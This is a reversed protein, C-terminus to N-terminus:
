IARGHSLAEFREASFQAWTQGSPEEIRGDAEAKHIEALLRAATPGTIEMSTVTARIAALEKHTYTETDFHEEIVRRLFSM